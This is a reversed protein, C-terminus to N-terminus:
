WILPFVSVSRGVTAFFTATMVVLGGITCCSFTSPFLSVSTSFDAAPWGTLSDVATKVRTSYLDVNPDNTHLVADPIHSVWGKGRHDAAPPLKAFGCAEWWLTLPVSHLAVETYGKRETVHANDTYFDGIYTLRAGRVNTTDVVLTNGEWHGRGDGMWLKVNSAPHPRNDLPIVRYAHYEDWIFIVQGPTQVIKYAPVITYLRPIGSLLCRHQTDIHEPRTPHEYDKEEQKQRAAAWPQYPLQGDPPDIIRSPRKIEKGSVRQDFDEGGSIPNTLSTSGAMTAAWIGQVDPQGDSLKQPPWPRSEQGVLAATSLVCIGLAVILNSKM